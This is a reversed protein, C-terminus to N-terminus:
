VVVDDIPTPPKAMQRQPPPTTPPRTANFPLDGPSDPHRNEAYKCRWNACPSHWKACANKAVCPPNVNRQTPRTTGFRMHGPSDPHRNKVNSCRLNACPTQCNPASQQGTPNSPHHCTTQHPRSALPRCYRPASERCLLMLFQRTPPPTPVHPHCQTPPPRAAGFRM